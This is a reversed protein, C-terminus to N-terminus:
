TNRVCLMSSDGPAPKLPLFWTFSFHGLAWGPKRLHGMQFAEEDAGFLGHCGELAYFLFFFLNQHLAAVQLLDDAEGEEVVHNTAMEAMEKLNSRGVALAILKTGDTFWDVTFHYSQFIKSDLDFATHRVTHRIWANICQANVISCHRLNPVVFNTFSLPKRRSFYLYWHLCTCFAMRLEKLMRSAMQCSQFSQFYWLSGQLRVVFHFSLNTFLSYLLDSNVMSHISICWMNCSSVTNPINGSSRPFRSRFRLFADFQGPWFTSRKKSPLDTLQNLSVQCGYPWLAM